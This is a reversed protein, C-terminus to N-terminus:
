SEQDILRLIARKAKLPDYGREPLMDKQITNGAEDIYRGNVLMYSGHAGFVGPKVPGVTQNLNSDANYQKWISFLNSALINVFPYFGAAIECKRNGCTASTFFSVKVGKKAAYQAAEIMSILSAKKM